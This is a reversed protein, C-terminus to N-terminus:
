VLIAPVCSIQLPTQLSPVILNPNSKVADHLSM